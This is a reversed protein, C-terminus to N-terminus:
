PAPSEAKQWRLLGFSSAGEGPKYAGGGVHDEQFLVHYLRAWPEGPLQYLVWGGKRRFLPVDRENTTIEWAADSMATQLIQAEPVNRTLQSRVSAELTADRPPDAPFANRPAQANIAAQLADLQAIIPQQLGDPMPRGAQAYAAQWRGAMEELYQARGAVLLEADRANLFEGQQTLEIMRGIQGLASALDYQVEDPVTRQLRADADAAERRADALKQRVEALAQAGTAERWSLRAVSEMHLEPSRQLVAEIKLAALELKGITKEWQGDPAPLSINVMDAFASEIIEEDPPVTVSIPCAPAECGAIQLAEVLMAKMLEAYFRAAIGNKEIPGYDAGFFRRATLLEDHGVPMLYLAGSPDRRFAEQLAILSNLYDNAAQRYQQQGFHRDAALSRRYLRYVEQEEETQPPTPGFESFSDM